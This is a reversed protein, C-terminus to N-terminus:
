LRLFCKLHGWLLRFQHPSTQDYIFTQCCFQMGLTLGVGFILRVSSLWFINKKWGPISIVRLTIRVTLGPGARHVSRWRSIKIGDFICYTLIWHANDRAGSPCSLLSNWIIWPSLWCELCISMLVYGDLWQRMKKIIGDHLIFSGVLCM